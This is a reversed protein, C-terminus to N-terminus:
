LWPGLRGRRLNGQRIDRSELGGDVLYCRSYVPQYLGNRNHLRHDRRLRQWRHCVGDQSHDVINGAERYAGNPRGCAAEELSQM